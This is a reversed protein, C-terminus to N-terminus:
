SPERNTEMVDWMLRPDFSITALMTLVVVGGFAVSGWGPIVSAYFGMHVLGVLTALVFVDVMSWRGVLEIARYLRTRLRLWRTSRFRIAVLMTALGLLKFMPVVFSAAFVLIGLPILGVAFLESVGSLINHPGGRGVKQITMVPLVNAPIYLLVAAILLSWTRRLSGPRRLHLVAGCRWCHDGEPARELRGCGHCLIHPHTGHDDSRGSETLDWITEKDLTSDAAVTCLMVGGLLYLAPELSVRALQNLRTYAIFSGVIFVEIMAWESVEHPYRYVRGLWRPVPDLRAGVLVAVLGTLRLGPMLVLTLLVVIALPWLGWEGLWIAGSFLSAYAERGPARVGMFPLTLAALFLTLALSACFLPFSEAQRSARRLLAGCRGCHAVSGGELAPLEQTLGCDLCERTESPTM